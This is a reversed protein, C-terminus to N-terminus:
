VHLRLINPAEDDAYGDINEAVGVRIVWIELLDNEFLARVHLLDHLPNFHLPGLDNEAAFVDVLVHQLSEFACRYRDDLFDLMRNDQFDCFDSPALDDFVDRQEHWM